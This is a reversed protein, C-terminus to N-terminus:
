GYVVRGLVLTQMVADAGIADYDCDVEGAYVSLGFLHPYANYAREFANRWSNLTILTWAGPRTDDQKPDTDDESERVFCLGEDNGRNPWEQWDYEWLRAWGGDTCSWSEIADSLMDRLLSDSVQKYVAVQEM